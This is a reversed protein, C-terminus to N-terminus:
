VRSLHDVVVNEVGQKDKIQINFEQLLLIWRILRAKADKKNLLYKLASHDTFIVISTGLLYNRFKDLAFVVALLEKETTTYNKQAENLTKSAYYVVYPKGDERQGLVAGVAYDSADCMLEFPLSWNPSRVIPATTLLSKLRKFAEQCAKTWIFEADKLLLACLPQAIKSFDQIFRRYFGAHGLFQRVEKVTTPSPLKSILEIKAPDVQIGEKSIIHGLVVGSTAMFHCKEWNLVLDKEICRKLVKKLNLLCDDFTKGYVTLDDMFVEMIREVMDSFISLMCRQFTAPANCLGFPMRRYAYTGFPCTFTTKEQDELAIAIQFYGSYGDLFCYYDHGAVRELVQDLFPLPFHDKKTVANLKRFDICVRWGTTLRTPILDGEDNKMVTIGSKKPVVQTPSVWSSDSIPYIIGADLLKFVENRVVDQM